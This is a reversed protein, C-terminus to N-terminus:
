LNYESNTEHSLAHNPHFYLNYSLSSTNDNHEYHPWIRKTPTQSQM